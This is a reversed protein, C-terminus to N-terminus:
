LACGRSLACMTRQPGCSRSSSHFDARHFSCELFCFLNLSIMHSTLCLTLKRVVVSIKIVHSSKISPKLVIVPKRLDGKLATFALESGCYQALSGSLFHHMIVGLYLKRKDFYAFNLIDRGCVFNDCFKTSLTL